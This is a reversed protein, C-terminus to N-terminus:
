EFAQPVVSTSLPGFIRQCGIMYMNGLPEVPVPRVWRTEFVSVNRSWGSHPSQVEILQKEQPAQGMILLIGEASRNVSFAEGQRIAVSEEEVAELMEYSCTQWYDMRAESRRELSVTSASMEGFVQAADKHGVKKETGTSEASHCLMPKKDHMAM